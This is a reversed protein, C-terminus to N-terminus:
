LIDVKSVAISGLARINVKYRGGPEVVLTPNGFMGSMKITVKIPENCEFEAIEGQKCKVLVSGNEDFVTCGTNFLQGQYKPFAIKITNDLSIPNGCNPCSQAKSSVEKGCESCKILAM